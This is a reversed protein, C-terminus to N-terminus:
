PQRGDAQRTWYGSGRRAVENAEAVAATLRRDVDARPAAEAEALAAAQREASTRAWYAIFPSERPTDTSM